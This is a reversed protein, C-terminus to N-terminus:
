RLTGCNPCIAVHPALVAHCTQCRTYGPALDSYEQAPAVPPAAAAQPELSPEPPAPQTPNTTRPLVIHPDTDGMRDAADSAPTPDATVRPEDVVLPRTEATPRRRRPEPEAKYVQAEQPRPQGPVRPPLVNTPADATRAREVVPQQRPRVEVPAPMDVVDADMNDYEDYGYDDYVQDYARRGTILIFLLLPVAFFAVALLVWGIQDLLFRAFLSDNLSEENADSLLFLRVYQLSFSLLLMGNVAAVIAGLVRTQTEHYAPALTAGLGYGLIFTSAVLFAMAVIFAGSSATLDTYATLDRGWPRSWFDALVIGFLVGLTVFLEKVPGRWFGIPMFLVILLLLLIDLVLFISM